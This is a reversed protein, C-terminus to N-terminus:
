CSAYTSHEDIDINVGVDAGKDERLGIGLGFIRQHRRGCQGLHGVTSKGRAHTQVTGHSAHKAGSTGSCIPALQHGNDLRGM